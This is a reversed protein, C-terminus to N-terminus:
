RWIVQGFFIYVLSCLADASGEGGGGEGRGGPPRSPPYLVECLLPNSRDVPPVDHFYFNVSCASTAHPCLSTFRRRFAICSGYACLVDSLAICEVLFSLRAHGPCFCVPFHLVQLQLFGEKKKERLLPGRSIVRFFFFALANSRCYTM